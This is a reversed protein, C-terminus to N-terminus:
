IDSEMWTIFLVTNMRYPRFETMDGYHDVRGRIGTLGLEAKVAKMLERMATRNAKAYGHLGDYGYRTLEPMTVKGRRVWCYNAEGAFTDTYEYEYTNM